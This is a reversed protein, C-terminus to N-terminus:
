LLFCLTWVAEKRDRRAPDLDQRRLHRFDFKEKDFEDETPDHFGSFRFAFTYLLYFACRNSKHSVLHHKRRSHSKTMTSSAKAFSEAEEGASIYHFGVLM